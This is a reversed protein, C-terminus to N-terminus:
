SPNIETVTIGRVSSYVILNFGVKIGANYTSPIIWYKGAKLTVQPTVVGSVADNYAGSTAIHRELTARGHSAPFITLNVPICVSPRTLQLRVLIQSTTPVVLEFIPNSSYRKFSPSGAATADTWASRVPKGYMGAGEQPILKLDCRNSCEIDLSFPGICSPEFPSLIVTYSGVALETALRALGYTYAGTTCAVESHTVEAIREGQSWVVTMNIPIDKSSQMLLVINAKGGSTPVKPPHITLHYQPNLMFTPHNCNGGANKSTWQGEKRYPFPLHVPNQIWSLRESNAYATITFGADPAEGDYLAVISLRGSSSSTPTRTRVLVHTSNTYTSKVAVKTLDASGKKNTAINDEFQVKLSIYEGSRHTDNLHRTLLVWVEEDSSDTGTLDYSLQLHHTGSPSSQNRRNWMGHFTLSQSWLNPDWSAYIGDFVNLVDTWPINLIRSSDQSGDRESSPLWSDLVTLWRDEETERVDIVAYSHSPLLEVDHWAIKDSIGTGLTLLCQGKNFGTTIREWTKEREFNSSKIEIHEPIWGTIANLDISSNSGPFDYGGMLKMYGKELLSPWIHENIQGQHATSMCMPTGLEPHYPLKDDIAVQRWTGNFYLRLFYLGESSDSTPLRPSMGNSDRKHLCSRALDSNFRRRHELCVSISACVSCDTVIHQIIDQPALSRSSQAVPSTGNASPSPVHASRWVPSVALQEASLAPQQTFMDSHQQPENWSPFTLGNVRSGRSLVLYQEHPSFHDVAVPTLSLDAAKGVVDEIVGASVPSSSQAKSVYAKIKEARGMCTRANEKSRNKLAQGESTSRSLHIFSEAAKIYLTFASDYNGSLEANAAKSKIAEAEAQPSRSM